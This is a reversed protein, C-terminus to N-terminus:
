AQKVKKNEIHLINEDGSLISTDHTAMLLTSTSKYEKLLKMIEVANDHDLSATPEDAFIVEPESVLARAIAVRQREGGSLEFIHKQTYQEIGLETLLVHAKENYEKNNAPAGVMVNEIVTLYPILFHQQFIYGFKQRKIKSFQKENMTSVDTGDIIISGSTPKKLGSFLYILSSKGSGSPGLVVVNKGNEIKLNIDDLVLNEKHGDKYKLSLNRCELM